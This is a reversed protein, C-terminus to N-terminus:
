KSVRKVKYDVVIELLEGSSSEFTTFGTKQSYDQLYGSLDSQMDKLLSKKDAIKGSLDLAQPLKLIQKKTLGRVKVAEKVAQDHTQYTPDNAFIADLLDKLKAIDEKLKDMQSMLSNISASSDLTADADTGVIEGEIINKNPDSM